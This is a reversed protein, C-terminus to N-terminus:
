SKRRGGTSRRSSGSSAATTSRRGQPDADGKGGTGKVKDPFSLDLIDCAIDAMLETDGKLFSSVKALTIPDKKEPWIDGNGRRFSLFCLRTLGGFSAMLYTLANGSTLGVTRAEQHATEMIIRKNEADLEDDKLSEAAAGVVQARMWKEIIGWDDFELPYLHVMKGFIERPLPAKTGDSVDTM